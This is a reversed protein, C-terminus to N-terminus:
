RRLAACSTATTGSAPRASSGQRCARDLGAAIVLNRARRVRRDSGGGPADGGSRVSVDFAFVVRDAAHVPQVDVVEAGYEVLHSMQRAAWELYDHFEVLLPFLTKHNMFDVLRGRDHLYAVFSHASTPNRMTVLDKLFSVQMTADGILM